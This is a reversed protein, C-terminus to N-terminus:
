GSEGRAKLASGTVIEYDEGNSKIKKMYCSRYNDNYKAGEFKCEEISGGFQYVIRSDGSFCSKLCVRIIYRERALVKENIMCLKALDEQGAINKEKICREIKLNLLKSDDTKVELGKGFFFYKGAAVTGIIVLMGFLVLFILSQNGSSAGKDNMKGREERAKLSLIYLM